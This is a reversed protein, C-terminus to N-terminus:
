FSRGPTVAAHRVGSREIAEKARAAAQAAAHPQGAAAEDQRDKQAAGSQDQAHKQGRGAVRKFYEQWHLGQDLAADENACDRGIAEDIERARRMTAVADEDWGNPGLPMTPEPLPGVANKPDDPLSADQAAQKKADAM